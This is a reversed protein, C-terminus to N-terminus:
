LVLAGLAQRHDEHHVRRQVGGRQVIIHQVDLSFAAAIQAPRRLALHPAVGLVPEDLLAGIGRYSSARAAAEFRRFEQVSLPRAYEEKNPSLAMTLLMAAYANETHEM